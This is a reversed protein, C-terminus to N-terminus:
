LDRAIRLGLGFYRGAVPSRLRYTVRLLRAPDGWGGGRVARRDALSCHSTRASGDVPAGDYDKNYCDELWEWVNGRIDHFGLADPEFSGVPATTLWRDKGEALSTCCHTEAGYNATDHSLRDIGDSVRSGAQAVYEWEAETPLRYHHGTLRTLWQVYAQADYWNICVVPHTAEQAYGPARWTRGPLDEWKGQWKGDEYGHCSDGADHDTAEVFKQFQERTVEYVGLAFPKAITVRHRPGEDPTAQPDGAVAGMEFSGAPVVKMVPCEACDRFTADSSAPNAAAVAVVLLSVLEIM